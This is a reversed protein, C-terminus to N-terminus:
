AEERACHLRLIKESLKWDLRRGHKKLLGDIVPLRLAAYSQVRAEANCENLELLPWGDELHVKLPSQGEAPVCALVSDLLCDAMLVAEHYGLPCPSDAPLEAEVICRHKLAPVARYFGLEQEFVDKWSTPANARGDELHRYREGTERIMAILLDIQEELGGLDKREPDRFMMLQVMGSLANLPNNLNHVLGGMHEGFSSRCAGQWPSAKLGPILLRGATTPLALCDHFLEHDLGPKEGTQERYWDILREALQNLPRPGDLSEQFLPHAFTEPLLEFPIGQNSM